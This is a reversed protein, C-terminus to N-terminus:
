APSATGAPEGPAPAHAALRSARTRGTFVFSAGFGIVLVALAAYPAYITPATVKYISGFVAGGTVALGLLCASAKRWLRTDIVPSLVALSLLAYTVALGFAGFASLWSYMAFYHPLGAAAFLGSWAATLVIWVAYVVVVVANGASPTGRRASVRALAKPMRHDRAMAFVGRAGSVSVGIYVATMDLLVILEVLRRVAVAGMGGASHPGALVTVLGAAPAPANGNAQGVANLDFHFGVVQAYSGLLYFGFAALIAFLVARPVDRKPHESEEAVNAAAEFGTFLLVGYLVGFLVGSWHTPSSSPKFAKFSNASGAKIIIYLFFVTMVALSLMALVFQARTSLQVGLHLVVALLALLLVNWGWGPLVSHGFEALLLDHITGGLLVAIGAGLIIIGAYYVWGAAVGIREGLGEAIYDYLSGASQIRKTFQVVTWGLGLMGVAAIVVALPAAGGAGKGSATIIGAVLPVIAAVSFVPGMFGVSQAVVDLLGLKRGNGLQEYGSRPQQTTM